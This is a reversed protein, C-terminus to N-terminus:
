YGEISQNQPSAVYRQALDDDRFFTQMSARVKNDTGLDTVLEHYCGGHTNIAM